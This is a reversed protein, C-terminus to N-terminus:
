KLNMYKIIRDKHKGFVIIHHNGYPSNLFYKTDELKVKIQTRCLNEENLNTLIVGEQVHYNQLDNSLKFITIDQEQLHGRFAVGIGSEYHTMTKFSEVMNLPLTCHAFVMENTEIDIRSPNAQFGPEGVIENLLYMSLMAPIDGECTGISDESNLLALSLCGTTKVTDLLDFCRITLGKLNYKDKIIELVKSLKKADDVAISDFDLVLDERYNDLSITNYLNIVEDMSIDILEINLKDLVESYDVNSAILWDSPKGVVGLKVIEKNDKKSLKKLRNSIYTASGHLIEAECNKAKLYSLIEMSAALSNNTGYTLLYYPPKLDKEMELFYGESGGSQVLILSINSKYLNSKDTIEFEFNSINEIQNLLMKTEDNVTHGDHLKSVIPLINIKM